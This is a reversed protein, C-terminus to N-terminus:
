GCRSPSARSPETFTSPSRPSSTPAAAPPQSRGGRRGFLGGLVDGLGGGGRRAGGFLDGFDFTAAARAVPGGPVRFGAAPASCRARRTTSRAASPTPSCTTPRPSRRSGSRPVAADGKNADPHYKRALKRYAKKIEDATADKPVGLAAYYDKEVYDRTSM